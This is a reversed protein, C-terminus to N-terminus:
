AYQPEHRRRAAAATFLARARALEDLIESFEAPFNADRELLIGKVDARALIYEMMDFVADPVPYSHSDVWKRGDHYGGAMHLQVVRDMPISDLFEYPDYRHNEANILVNTVDLLLGVDATTLVKTIFAAESMTAGPVVFGYTINELLFPKQCVQKVRAAHRAVIEVSHDSFQLPGLQGLNYGPVRTFCLHDTHWPASVTDILLKLGALYAEDLPGDTGISLDVGHPVLPIQSAISAVHALQDAPVDIYHEAILECWDIADLNDLIPRGIEGRWGLGVGLSPIAANM